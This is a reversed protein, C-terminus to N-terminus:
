CYDFLHFGIRGIAIVLRLTPALALRAPASGPDAVETLM